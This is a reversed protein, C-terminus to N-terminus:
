WNKTWNNVSEAKTQAISEAMSRLQQDTITITIGNQMALLYFTKTLDTTPTIADIRVLEM